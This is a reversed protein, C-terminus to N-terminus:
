RRIKDVFWNYVSSFARELAPIATDTVFNKVAIVFNKTAPIAVTTVFTKTEVNALKAALKAFKDIKQAFPTLKYGVYATCAGTLCAVGVRKWDIRERRGHLIDYTQVGLETLGGLVSGILM